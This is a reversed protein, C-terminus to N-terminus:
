RKTGARRRKLLGAAMRRAAPAASGKPIVRRATAGLVYYGQVAAMLGAAASAPDECSLEGQEVGRSIVCALRGALEAVVAEFRRQVARERLAEGSLAIWCALAEPDRDPGLALLGDLFAEVQEMAEPGSAALKRELRERQRAVMTDLLSLLIELKNRFHYHVLGPALGAEAAVEAVSAGEYGKRAMVRLLGATIQARREATNKPRAM